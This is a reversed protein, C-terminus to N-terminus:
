KTIIKSFVYYESGTFIMLVNGNHMIIFLRNVKTDEDTCGYWVSGNNDTKEYTMDDYSTTSGDYFYCKVIKLKENAYILHFINVEEVSTQEVNGNNSVVGFFNTKVVKDNIQGVVLNAFLLFFLLITLKENTGNRIRKLISNLAKEVDKINKVKLAKWYGDSWKDNKSKGSIKGRLKRKNFENKIIGICYVQKNEDNFLVFVGEERTISDFKGKKFYRSMTCNNQVWL